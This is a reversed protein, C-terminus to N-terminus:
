HIRSEPIYDNRINDLTGNRQLIMSNGAEIMQNKLDLSVNRGRM